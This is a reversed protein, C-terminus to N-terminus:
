KNSAHNIDKTNAIKNINLPDQLEGTRNHLRDMYVKGMPISVTAYETLQFLIHTRALEEADFGHMIPPEDTGNRGTRLEM